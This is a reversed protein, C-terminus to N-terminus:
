RPNELSGPLTWTELVSSRLALLRVESPSGAEEIAGDICDAAPASSINSGVNDSVKILEVATTNERSKM